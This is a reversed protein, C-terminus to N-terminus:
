IGIGIGGFLQVMNLSIVIIFLISLIIKSFNTSFGVLKTFGVYMAICVLGVSLLSFVVFIFQPLDGGFNIITLFNLAQTILFISTGSLIVSYMKKISLDPKNMLGILSWFMTFIFCLILIFPTIIASILVVITLWDKFAHFSKFNYIVTSLLTNFFLLSVINFLVVKKKTNFFSSSNNENEKM